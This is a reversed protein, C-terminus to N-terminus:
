SRFTEPRDDAAAIQDLGTPQRVPLPDGCHSKTRKLELDCSVPWGMSGGTLQQSPRSEHAGTCYAPM